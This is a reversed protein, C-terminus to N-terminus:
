GTPQLISDPLSGESNPLTEKDPLVEQHEGILDNIEDGITPDIAFVHQPNKFSYKKGDKDGLNHDVIAKAFDHIRQARHDIHIDGGENMQGDDDRTMGAVLVKGMRDIMQGHDFRRLLIWANPLSKLYYTKESPRASADVLGEIAM